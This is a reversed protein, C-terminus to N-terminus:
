PLTLKAGADRGWPGTYDLFGFRRRYEESTGWTHHLRPSEPPYGEGADRALFFAFEGGERLPLHKYWSHADCVHEVFADIQGSTPWALSGFETLSLARQGPPDRGLQDISYVQKM